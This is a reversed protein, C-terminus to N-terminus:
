RSLGERDSYRGTVFERLIWQNEAWFSHSVSKKVVFQASACTKVDWKPPEAKNLPVRRLRSADLLVACWLDDAVNRLGLAAAFLAAPTYL